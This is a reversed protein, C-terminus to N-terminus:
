QFPEQSQRFTFAEPEGASPQSRSVFESVYAQAHM